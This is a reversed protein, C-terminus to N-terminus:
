DNASVTSERATYIEVTGDKRTVTATMEVLPGADVGGFKTPDIPTKRKVTYIRGRDVDPPIDTRREQGKLGMLVNRVFRKIKRIM